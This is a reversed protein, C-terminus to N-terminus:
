VEHKPDDLNCLEIIKRSGKRLPKIGVGLKKYIEEQTRKEGCLVCSIYVVSAIMSDPRVGLKRSEELSNIQLKTLLTMGQWIVDDPLELKRCAERLKKRMITEPKLTKNSKDFLMGRLAWEYKRRETVAERIKENLSTINGGHNKRSKMNYVDEGLMDIRYEIYNNRATALKEDACIIKYILELIKGANVWEAGKEPLMTIIRRTM